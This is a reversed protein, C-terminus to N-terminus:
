SRFLRLCSVAYFPRQLRVSAGNCVDVLLQFAPTDSKQAILKCDCTRIESRVSPHSFLGIICDMVGSPMSVSEELLAILINTMHRIINKSM